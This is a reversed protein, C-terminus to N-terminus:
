LKNKLNEIEGQLQKIKIQIKKMDEDIPDKLTKDVGYACFSKEKNKASETPHAPVGVVTLNEKVDQIIFHGVGHIYIVRLSDILAYYPYERTQGAIIDVYTKSITFTTESYTNFKFVATFDYPQLEGIITKDPQCLFVQPPAYNDFLNSPLNM